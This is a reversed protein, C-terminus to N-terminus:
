FLDDDSSEEIKIPTRNAHKNPTLGPYQSRPTAPVDPAHVAVPHISNGQAFPFGPATRPAHGGIYEQNPPQTHPMYETKIAARQADTLQDLWERALKDGVETPERDKFNRALTALTILNNTCLEELLKNEQDTWKKVANLPRRQGKASRYQDYLDQLRAGTKQTRLAFSDSIETFTLGGGEHLEVMSKFDCLLLRPGRIRCSRSSRSERILAMDHVDDEPLKGNDANRVLRTWHALVSSKNRYQQKCYPCIGESLKNVFDHDKQIEELYSPDEFEDEEDNMVNSHDTTSENRQKAPFGEQLPDESEARIKRRQRVEQMSVKKNQRPERWISHTREQPVSNTMIPDPITSVAPALPELGSPTQSHSKSRGSRSISTTPPISTTQPLTPVRWAPEIHAVARKEILNLVEQGMSEGYKKLIADDDYRERRGTDASFPNISPYVTGSNTQRQEDGVVEFLSDPSSLRDPNPVEFLSDSDSSYTDRAMSTEYHKQWEMPEVSVEETTQRVDDQEFLDDVNEEDSQGEDSFAANEAITEISMLVEDAGENDFEEEDSITTMARLISRGTAATAAEQTGTDTEGMMSALHGNDVIIEGTMVDIEDGILSFDRSYKEFIAEFRSKLQMDNDHRAAELEDDSDNDAFMTLRPRKRPTEM